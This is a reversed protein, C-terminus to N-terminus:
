FNVPTWHNGNGSTDRGLMGLDAFTLHFGNAGFSGTYPKPTWVGGVDQGFDAPLLSQGDAFIVNALHYDAFLAYGPIGGIYHAAASNLSTAAVAATWSSPGINNPVGTHFKPDTPPGTGVSRWYLNFWTTTSTIAPMGGILYTTGFMMTWSDNTAFASHVKNAGSEAFVAQQLGFSGVRKVWMSLTWPTNGATGFARQMYQSSSRTFRLPTALLDGGPPAAAPPKNAAAMAFM